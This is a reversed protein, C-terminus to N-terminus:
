PGPFPPVCLNCGRTLCGSVRAGLADRVPMGDRTVDGGGQGENRPRGVECDVLLEVVCVRWGSEHRICGAASEAGPQGSPRTFTLFVRGHELGPPRLAQAAGRGEHLVGALRLLRMSEKWSVASGIHLRCGSSRQLWELVGGGSSGGSAASGRDAAALLGLLQQLADLLATGACDVRRWLRGCLEPRFPSAELLAHLASGGTHTGPDAVGRQVGALQPLFRFADAAWAVAQLESPPAAAQQLFRQAHVADNYVCVVPGVM